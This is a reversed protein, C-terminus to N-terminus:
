VDNAVPGAFGDFTGSHAKALVVSATILAVVAEDTLAMNKSGTVEYRLSRFALAVSFGNGSLDSMAKRANSKSRFSFFVEVERSLDLKDQYVIRKEKQQRWMELQRQIENMNGKGLM